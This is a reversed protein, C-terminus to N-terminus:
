PSIGLVATFVGKPRITKTINIVNEIGARCCFRVEEMDALNKVMEAEMTEADVRGPTLKGLRFNLIKPILTELM